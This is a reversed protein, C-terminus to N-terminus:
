NFVGPSTSDRPTDILDRHKNLYDWAVDSINFAHGSIDDGVRSLLFLVGQAVFECIVGSSVNWRATKSGKYIYAQLAKKQERTLDHLLNIQKGAKRKQELHAVTFKYLKEIPYTVLWALSIVLAVVIWPYYPALLMGIAPVVRMLHLLAGSAM